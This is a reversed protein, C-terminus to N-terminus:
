GQGPVSQGGLDCELGSEGPVRNSSRLAGIGLEDGKQAIEGVTDVVFLYQSHQPGDMVNMVDIAAQRAGVKGFEADREATGAVVVDRVM